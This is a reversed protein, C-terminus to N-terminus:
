RWSGVPPLSVPRPEHRNAAQAQQYQEDSENARDRQDHEARHFRSVNVFTSQGPGLRVSRYDLGEARRYLLSKKDRSIRVHVACGPFRVQRNGDGAWISFPRNEHCCSLRKALPVIRTEDNLDCFRM